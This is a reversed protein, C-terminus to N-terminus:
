RNDNTAARYFFEVCFLLIPMVLFAGGLSLCIVGFILQAQGRTFNAVFISILFLFAVVSLANWIKDLMKQKNRM